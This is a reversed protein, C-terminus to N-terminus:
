NKEEKKKKRQELNERLARERKQVKEMKHETKKARREAHPVGIHEQKSYVLCAQTAKKSRELGEMIESRKKNLRTIRRILKKSLEKLVGEAEEREEPALADMEKQLASLDEASIDSNVLARLSHKEKWLKVLDKLKHSM